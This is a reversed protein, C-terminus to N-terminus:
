GFIWTLVDSQFQGEGLDSPVEDPELPHLLEYEAEDAAAHGPAWCPGSPCALSQDEEEEECLYLTVPGPRFLTM